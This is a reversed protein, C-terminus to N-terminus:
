EKLTVCGNTYMAHLFENESLGTYPGPDSIYEPYYTTWEVFDAPDTHPAVFVIQPGRTTISAELDAQSICLNPWHTPKAGIAVLAGRAPFDFAMLYESGGEGGQEVMLVRDAQGFKSFFSQADFGPPPNFYTLRIAQVKGGVPDWYVVVDDLGLDSAAAATPSERASMEAWASRATVGNPLVETRPANPDFPEVLPQVGFSSFFATIANTGSQGPTLGNWCPFPCDSTQNLTVLTRLAAQPLPTM